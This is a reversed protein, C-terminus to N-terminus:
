GGFSQVLQSVGVALLGTGAHRLTRNSGGAFVLIAGGVLEPPLGGVTLTSVIEPSYRRVLGFAAAGLLAGTLHKKDAAAARFRRAFGRVPTMAGRGRVSLPGAQRLVVPQPVRVIKVGAAKAMHVERPM